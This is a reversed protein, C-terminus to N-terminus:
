SAEAAKGEELPRATDIYKILVVENGKEGYILEDVLERALLVGFGGSRLGKSDRHAVHRLPDDAPNAIAAHPVQDLSFGPGPDEIRCCVARRTRIYGIEVWQNSDFHGGHEIANLFIERFAQAVSRREDEPLSEGIERLFRLLRDATEMDCRAKVRIWDPKASIVEIGDDWSPAEMAAQLMAALEDAAFPETFYSFAHERIAAIVDGPTGEQALIIMRTHPHIRRIKRLLEVGEAASTKESTVIVDYQNAEVAALAAVNTAVRVTNWGSGDLVDRLVGSVSPSADIILAAKRSGSERGKSENQM